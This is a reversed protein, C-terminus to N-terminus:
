MWAFVEGELTWGNYGFSRNKGGEVEAGKERCAVLEVIDGCGEDGLEAAFVVIRSGVQAFASSDDPRQSLIVGRGGHRRVLGLDIRRHHRHIAIKGPHQIRAIHRM